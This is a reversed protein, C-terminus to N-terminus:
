NEIRKLTKRAEDRVVSPLADDAILSDCLARIHSATYAEGHWGLAELLLVIEDSGM